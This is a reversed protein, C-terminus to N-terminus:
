NKKEYILVGFNKERENIDRFFQKQDTESIIQLGLNKIFATYQKGYVKVVVSRTGDCFNVPIVIVKDIDFYKATNRIKEIDSLSEKKLHEAM